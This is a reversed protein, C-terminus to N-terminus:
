KKGTTSTNKAASSQARATFSGKAVSGGNQKAQTSQIRAAAESTMPTKSQTM